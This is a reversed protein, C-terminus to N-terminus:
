KQMAQLRAFTQTFSSHSRDRSKDVAHAMAGNMQAPLREGGKRRESLRVAFGDITPFGFISVIKIIFLEIFILLNYYNLLM